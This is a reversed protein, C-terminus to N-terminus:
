CAKDIAEEIIDLEGGTLTCDGYMFRTGINRQIPYIVEMVESLVLEHAILRDIIDLCRQANNDM